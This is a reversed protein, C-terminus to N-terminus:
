ILQLVEHLPKEGRHLVGVHFQGGPCLTGEEGVLELCDCSDNGNLLIDTPKAADKGNRVGRRM